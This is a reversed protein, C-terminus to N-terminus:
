GTATVVAPLYKKPRSEHPDTQTETRPEKQKDTVCFPGIYKLCSWESLAFESLAKANEGQPADYLIGYRILGSCRRGRKLSMLSIIIM